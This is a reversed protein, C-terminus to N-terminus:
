SFTKGLYLGIIGMVMLQVGGFFAIMVIVSAWGPGRDWGCYFSLLV